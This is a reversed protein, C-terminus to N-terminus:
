FLPSLFIFFVSAFHYLFISFVPLPLFSSVLSGSSFSNFLITSVWNLNYTLSFFAFLILSPLVLPTLHISVLFFLVESFFSPYPPAALTFLFSFICVLSMLPSILLLGRILALQRTSYFSYLSGVIAFLVPSSLGHFVIVLLVTQIRLQSSSVILLPIAIIHSVSSYAVLRKFDSQFCCVISAFVLFVVIYGVGVSKLSVVDIFPLFRVLGAGGLKLLVGALIISGFTPAEVHAIPLWFHLGYIPLKVSFALFILFSILFSTDRLSFPILFLFSSTIYFLSLLGGILPLSFLSTYLLLMLASLSREPYSGWKIIIYIIPILSLEYFFYLLLLNNSCFVFFCPLFILYLTFNKYNPFSSPAFLYSSYIVFVTLLLLFLSYPDNLFISIVSPLNRYSSFNFIFMLLFSLLYIPFNFFHPCM